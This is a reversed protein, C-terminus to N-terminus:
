VTQLIFDSQMKCSLGAHGTVDIEFGQAMFLTQADGLLAADNRADNRIRLIM